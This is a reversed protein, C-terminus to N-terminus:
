RIIPCKFVSTLYLTLMDQVYTPGPSSIVYKINCPSISISDGDPNFSYSNPLPWLNNLLSNGATASALLLLLLLVIKM